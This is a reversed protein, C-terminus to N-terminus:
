IHIAWLWAFQIARLWSSPADLFGFKVRLACMSSLWDMDNAAEVCGMHSEPLFWLDMCV